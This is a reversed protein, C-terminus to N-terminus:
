DIPQPEFVCDIIGFWEVVGNPVGFRLFPNSVWLEDVYDTFDPNAAEVKDRTDGIRIDHPAVMETIGAVPGGIYRWNTLSAHDESSGDPNEFVLTLGGTRIVWPEPTNTCAYVPGDVRQM